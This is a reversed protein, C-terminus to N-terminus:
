CQVELLGGLCAKPPFHFNSCEVSGDEEGEENGFFDLALLCNFPLSRELGVDLIGAVVSLPLCPGFM